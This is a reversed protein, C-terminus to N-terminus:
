YYTHHGGCGCRTCWWDEYASDGSAHGEMVINCGVLWCVMLHCCVDIWSLFSGLWFRTVPACNDSINLECCEYYDGFLWDNRWQADFSPLRNRKMRWKISSLTMDM